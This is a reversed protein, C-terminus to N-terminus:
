CGGGGLRLPARAETPNSVQWVRAGYGQRAARAGGSWGEKTEEGVMLRMRRMRRVM